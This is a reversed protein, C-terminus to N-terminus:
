VATIKLLSAINCFCTHDCCFSIYFSIVEKQLASVENELASLRKLNIKKEELLRKCWSKEKSMDSNLNKNEEVIQSYKEALQKCERKFFDLEENARHGTQKVSDNPHESTFHVKLGWKDRRIKSLEM